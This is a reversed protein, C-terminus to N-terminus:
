GNREYDFGNLLDFLTCGDSEQHAHECGEGLSFQLSLLMRWLHCKDHGLKYFRSIKKVM